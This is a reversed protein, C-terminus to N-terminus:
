GIPDVEGAMKAGIVLTRFDTRRHPAYQM